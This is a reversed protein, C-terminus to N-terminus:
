GLTFREVLARLAEADEELRAAADGLGTAATGADAVREAARRGTAGADDASAAVEGTVDTLAAVRAQAEAASAHIDDFAQQMRELATLGEASATAGDDALASARAVQGRVEEILATVSGVSDEVSTALRTIEDAVVAFGRGATGARAAEISANLALIGTVTAIGHITDILEGIRVSTADVDAVADRMARSTDAMRRVTDATGSAIATGADARDRADAAAQAAAAAASRAGAVMDTQRGMAREIHEMTAVTEVVAQRTAQSTGAVEAGTATLRLSRDQVRGTLDRLGDVMEGLAIGLVDRDSHATPRHTLDGTAVRRAAQEHMRLNGTMTAFSTALAGIEDSRDAPVSVDLDGLAIREAARQLRGIPRISRRVIVLTGVAVLVLAGLALLILQDRLSRTPAEVEDLPAVALYTWGSTGVPEAVVMARRGSIPDTTTLQLTRTGGAVGALARADAHPLATLRPSKAAVTGPGAVVHGSRSVVLAYGTRFLRTRGVMKSLDDLSADVGAVGAFRGARRFPVAFSTMLVGVSEDLYPEIVVPAGAARPATFYGKRYEARVGESPVLKLRGESRAFYPSYLGTPDSGPGGRNAADPGPAAGPMYVAWVGFLTPDDAAVRRMVANVARRDGGTTGAAVSALARATAMRDSVLADVQAAGAQATRTAERGAADRTASGSKQVALVTFAGLGVLVLALVATIITVALSRPRPLHAM